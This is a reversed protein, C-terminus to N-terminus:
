EGPDLAPFVPPSVGIAATSVDASGNLAIAPPPDTGASSGASENRRRIAAVPAGTGAFGAVRPAYVPPPHATTANWGGVVRWTHAARTVRREDIGIM